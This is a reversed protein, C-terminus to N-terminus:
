QPVGTSGGQPDSHKHTMLSKGGATVDGSVNVTSTINVAPAVIQVSTGAEIRAIAGASLTANGVAEVLTNGSSHITTNGTVNINLSSGTAPQIINLSHSNRDYSVSAGDFYSVKHVFEDNSPPPNTIDNIGSLVYANDIEGSPCFLVVQEGITPPHWTKNKGARCEVWSLPDTLLVDNIRVRCKYKVYDISVVVGTRILNSVRRELETIRFDNM